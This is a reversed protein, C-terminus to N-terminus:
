RSLAIGATTAYQDHGQLGSFAAAGSIGAAFGLQAPVVPATCDILPLFKEPTSSIGGGIVILDPSMLRELADLYIQLNGAWAVWSLGLRERAVSSAKAEWDIGNIELHGLESNPILTGNHILATGIGTGLTVLIVLGGEGKAAGYRTEAYGAADADNMAVATRNLENSLHTTADFGIWGPDMNAASLTVGKSVVSPLCVGIQQHEGAPDLLQVCGAITDVVHVPAGGRPTPAHVAEGVLKGTGLDVLGAKITTGGVDVGITAHPNM